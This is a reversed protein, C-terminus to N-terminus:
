KYLELAEAYLSGAYKKVRVVEELNLEIMKRGILNMEKGLSNKPIILNIFRGESDTAFLNDIEKVSLSM